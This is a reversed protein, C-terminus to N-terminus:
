KTRYSNEEGLDKTKHLLQNKRAQEFTSQKLSFDRIFAAAESKGESSLYPNFLSVIQAFGEKIHGETIEQVTERLQLFRLWNSHILWANIALARAEDTSLVLMERRRMNDLICEVNKQGRVTLAQLRKVADANKGRDCRDRFLFRYEWLYEFARAAYRM